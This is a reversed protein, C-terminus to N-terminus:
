GKVPQPYFTAGGYTQHHHMHNHQFSKQGPPPPAYSPPPRMPIPHMAIPIIRTNTPSMAQQPSLAATPSMVGSGQADASQPSPYVPVMNNPQVTVMRQMQVQALQYSLNNILLQQQQLQAQLTTVHDHMTALLHNMPRINGNQLRKLSDTSRMKFQQSADFKSEPSPYSVTRFDVTIPVPTPALSHPPSGSFVAPNCNAPPSGSNYSSVSAARSTNQSIPQGYNAIPLALFQANTKSSERSHTAPISDSGAPTALYMNAPPPGPDTAGAPAAAKQFIRLLQRVHARKLRKPKRPDKLVGQFAVEPLPELHRFLTIPIQAPYKSGPPQRKANGDDDLRIPTFAQPCVNWDAEGAPHYGAHMMKTTKNFLFIHSRDTLKKLNFMYQKPLGLLMRRLSEELTGSTCVFVMGDEFHDVWEWQPNQNWQRGRNRDDGHDMEMVSSAQSMYGVEPFAPEGAGATVVDAWLQRQAENKQTCGVAYGGHAMPQEGVVQGPIADLPGSVLVKMSADSSAM